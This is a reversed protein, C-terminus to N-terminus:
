GEFHATIVDDIERWFSEPQMGLESIVAHELSAGVQSHSGSFTRRLLGPHGEELYRTIWYGRTTQYAIEEGGARSMERYTPSKTKQPWARIIELTDQKITPKELLRDVTVMAIGENLWMPLKLHSSFAHTMEHCTIHQMKEEADTEQIFIRDGISRDALELLRPPKVGIVVRRGFRQTWGGAYSWMRKARLSWLPFLVGLLIRWHWPASHFVFRLWSTMVYIRCDAPTKLGWSEDILQVAKACTGAILDATDQESQDFLLTIGSIARTEM